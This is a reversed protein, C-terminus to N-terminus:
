NIIDISIKQCYKKSYIKGTSFYPVVECLKYRSETIKVRLLDPNINPWEFIFHFVLNKKFLEAWRETTKSALSDVSSKM